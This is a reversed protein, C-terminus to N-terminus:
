ETAEAHREVTREADSIGYIGAERYVAKNARTIADEILTKAIAAERKVQGNVSVDIMGDMRDWCESLLEVTTCERIPTIDSVRRVEASTLERERWEETRKDVYTTQETGM